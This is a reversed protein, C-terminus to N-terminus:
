KWFVLGLGLYVETINGNFLPQALAFTGSNGVM